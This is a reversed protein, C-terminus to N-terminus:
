RKRKAKQKEIEAARKAKDNVHSVYVQDLCQIMKITRLREDVDRLYVADMYAVIETLPIAGIGGQHVKRSTSCYQFAEWYDLVWKTLTPRNQLAQVEM